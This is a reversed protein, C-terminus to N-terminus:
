KLVEKICRNRLEGIGGIATIMEDGDHLFRQPSRGAGVGGPTGTAIVDGPLLTIVTSLYSVITASDFILDSIVSDQLVEGNVSCMIRMREVTQGADGGFTETAREPASETAREPANATARQPATTATNLAGIASAFGEVAPDDATVLWPGLPTSSEFTKGQLFQSTRRQWDRVSVDNMITYGAIYSPADGVSVHRAARGIVIVLEAEWDVNESVAPLVVNDHAGVLAGRFKAFVTPYKPLENGMELVHSRYNLGVCLIKDPNPVVPAFDCDLLAVREEARGSVEPRGSVEAGPSGDLSALGPYRSDALLAGVDPSDLLHAWDGEIRAAQTRGNIRLTALKM